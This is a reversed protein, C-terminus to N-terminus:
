ATHLLHHYLPTSFIVACNLFRYFFFQIQLVVQDIDLVYM